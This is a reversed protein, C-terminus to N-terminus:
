HRRVVFPRENSCEVQGVRCRSVGSTEPLHYKIYVQHLVLPGESMSGDRIVKQLKFDNPQHISLPLSPPLSAYNQMENKLVNAFKRFAVILKTM